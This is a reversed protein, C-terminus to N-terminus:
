KQLRRKLRAKKPWGKAKAKPKTKPAAEEHDDGRANKRLRKQAQEHDHDHGHQSRSLLMVPKIDGRSSAELIDPDHEADPNMALDEAVKGAQELLSDDVNPVEKFLPVRKSNEQCCCDHRCAGVHRSCLLHEQQEDRKGPEKPQVQWVSVRLVSIRIDHMTCTHYSAKGVVPSGARSKSKRREPSTCDKVELQCCDCVKPEFSLLPVEPPKM